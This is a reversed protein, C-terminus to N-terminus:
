NLVSLIRAPDLGRAVDEVPTCRPDPNGRLLVPHHRHIAVPHGDMIRQQPVIQAAGIRGFSHDRLAPHCLRYSGCGIEIPLDVQPWGAHSSREGAVAMQEALSRCNPMWSKKIVPQPMTDRTATRRTEVARGNEIQCILIAYSRKALNRRSRCLRLGTMGPSVMSWHCRM